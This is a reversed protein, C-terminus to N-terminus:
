MVRWATLEFLYQGLEDSGLVVSLRPPTSPACPWGAPLTGMAPVRITVASHHGRPTGQDEPGEQLFM